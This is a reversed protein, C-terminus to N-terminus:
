DLIEMKGKRGGALMWDVGNPCNKEDNGDPAAGAAESAALWQRQRTRFSHADLEAFMNIPSRWVTSTSSWSVPTIGGSCLRCHLLGDAFLRVFGGADVDAAINCKCNSPITDECFDTVTM